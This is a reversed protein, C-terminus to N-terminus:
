SHSRQAPLYSYFVFAGIITRFLIHKSNIHWGTFCNDALAHAIACLLLISWRM